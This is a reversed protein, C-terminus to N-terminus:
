GREVAFSLKDVKVGDVTVPDSTYNIYIKVGNDYTVRVVGRNLVKHESIMAGEVEKLAANVKSYVTDITGEWDGFNLSFYDVMPTKNLDGNEAGMVLFSPYAGYEISKM